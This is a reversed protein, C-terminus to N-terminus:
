RGVSCPSSAAIASRKRLSRPSHHSILFSFHSDEIIAEIVADEEDSMKTSM